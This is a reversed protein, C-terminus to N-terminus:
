IHNKTKYSVGDSEWCMFYEGDNNVGTQGIFKPDKLANYESSTILQCQDLQVSM